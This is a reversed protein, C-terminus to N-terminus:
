SVEHDQNNLMNIEVSMVNEIHISALRRIFEVVINVTGATCRLDEM